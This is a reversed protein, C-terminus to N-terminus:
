RRGSREQYAQNSKKSSDQRESPLRSHFKGSEIRSNQFNANSFLAFIQPLFLFPTFTAPVNKGIRVPVLMLLFQTSFPRFVPIKGSNWLIRTLFGWSTGPFNVAAFFVKRDPGYAFVNNVMTDCNYSCYFANQEICKDTCEASISIGDMFCISDDVIPARVQVLRAFERMKEKSPFRVVVTPNDTLREVALRLMARVVKSCIGPVIGFIMCLHKYNM